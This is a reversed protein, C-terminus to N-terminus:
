AYGIQFKVNRPAGAEHRVWIDAKPTGTPFEFYTRKGMDTMGNEADDVTPPEVDTSAYFVTVLPDEHMIAVFYAGVM